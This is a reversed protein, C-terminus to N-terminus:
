VERRYAKSGVAAAAPIKAIASTMVEVSTADRRTFM